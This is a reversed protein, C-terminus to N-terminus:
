FLDFDFDFDRVQTTRMKRVASAYAAQAVLVREIADVKVHKLKSKKAAKIQSLSLSLSLSPPHPTHPFHLFYFSTLSRGERVVYKKGFIEVCRRMVLRQM